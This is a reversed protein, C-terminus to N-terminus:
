VRAFWMVYVQAVLNMAKEVGDHCAIGWVVSLFTTEPNLWWAVRNRLRRCLTEKDLHASKRDHAVM